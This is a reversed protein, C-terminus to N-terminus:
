FTLPNGGQADPRRRLMEAMNGFSPEGSTKILQFQHRLQERTPKEHYLITNNSLARHLIKGNSTWNGSDDQYYLSAKAEIVKKDDEDCFVILASRRVGGSIVNEAIITAIDLCDISSVTQWQRNNQEKKSKFLDHIKEFMTKIAIHGSSYGGFTKLPEGAPRVHDYNILVFEIDAYQKSSVIDMYIEMARSWAFKSDGVTLELVSSTKMTLETHENRMNKAVPTYDKHIIEIDSNIKPLKSVYRKEVSLGAGTGLMLVFFMESFKKLSDIVLFSCNFNSLPYEYSSKTNGVWLSRGSPFLKLNYMMDYMKEAEKRIRSVVLDSIILGQRRMANIELTASFEITRAVTEWWRERRNEEPVPRSYTRYYVFKGLEAPFPDAKHKYKSLFSDSLYKFKGYTSGGRLKNREERYLIYRRSADFRKNEALMEETRDAVSDVTPVMDSEEFELEIEEAIDWALEEDIGDETEMMSKVVAQVIKSKDFDVMTYDRKTIKM